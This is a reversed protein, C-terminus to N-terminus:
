WENNEINWDDNNIQRENIENDRINKIVRYNVSITPQVDRLDREPPMESSDSYEENKISNDVDYSDEEVDNISEKRANNLLKNLVSSMFFGSAFSFCILKGISISQYNWIFYRFSSKQNNDIFLLIQITVVFFLSLILGNKKYNM